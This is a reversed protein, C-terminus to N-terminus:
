RCRHWKSAFATSGLDQTQKLTQAIKSANALLEANIQRNKDQLRSNSDKSSQWASHLKEFQDRFKDLNPDELMEEM